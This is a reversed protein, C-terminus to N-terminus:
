PIRSRALEHSLKEKSTGRIAGTIALASSYQVSEIKQHFSYAQDYIVGGYDLHPRIFSKYITLLPLRPLTNNLKRLLGIAKNVNSYINKLHVQFGLKVDLIMGLHKQTTSQAVAINNFHLPPYVSKQLKRSFIVEQAQKNPDPNFGM